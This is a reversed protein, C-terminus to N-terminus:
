MEEVPFPLGTYSSVWGALNFDHEVDAECEDAQGRSSGRYTDDFVTQWQEVQQRGLAAAMQVTSSGDLSAPLTTAPELQPAEDADVDFYSGALIPLACTQVGTVLDDRIGDEAQFFFFFFLFLCCLRYM